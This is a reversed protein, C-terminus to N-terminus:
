SKSPARACSIGPMAHHNGTHQPPWGWRPAAYLLEGLGILAFPPFSSLFLLFYWGFHMVFSGVFAVVLIAM